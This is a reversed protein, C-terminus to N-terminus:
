VRPTSWGVGRSEGYVGSTSAVAGACGSRSLLAPPLAPRALHLASWALFSVCAWVSSVSCRDAGSVLCAVCPLDYRLYVSSPPCHTRFQAIEYVEEDARVGIVIVLMETETRRLQYVVRLGSARLKIKLFEALNTRSHNGLTKGYGNEEAPLPNQQVKKIAKLVLLRQSGDLAKLDKEAEPLYELTWSM